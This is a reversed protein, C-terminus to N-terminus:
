LGTTTPELGVRGVNILVIEDGDSTRQLSIYDRAMAEVESLNKAQTMWEPNEPFTIVWFPGDEQLTDSYKVHSSM